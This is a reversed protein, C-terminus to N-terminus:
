KAEPKRTPAFEDFDNEVLGLDVYLTLLKGGREIVLAKPKGDRAVGVYITDLDRTTIIPKGAFSVFVDGVQLGAKELLSGPEVSRARVRLTIQRGSVDFHRQEILRNGDYRATWRASGQKCAIPRGDPGFYAEEVIQNGAGYGRELRAYGQGSTVLSGAADFTLAETQRGRDDYRYETRAVGDNQALLQGDIGLYRMQTQQGRANYSYVIAAKGEALVPKGAVGFYATEVLRNSGDFRNVLKSYGGSGLCPKGDIGFCAEELIQNQKGRKWTQRACGPKALTPKGDVGFYNIAILQGASDYEWTKRASGDSQLCLEGQTDFTALETVRRNRDFSNKWRARGAILVPEGNLDFYATETRNGAEDYSMTARAFGDRFRVPRRDVGLYWEEIVNGRPDRTQRLIAYGRGTLVPRDNADLYEEATKYGNPDYSCKWGCYGEHFAPKGNPAFFHIETINGDSNIIRRMSANGHPPIAVPKDNEDFYSYVAENPRLGTASASDHYQGRFIAFSRHCRAPALQAGLVTLYTPRGREDFTARYGAYGLSPVVVPKGAADHYSLQIMKGTADFQRRLVAVGERNAKMKGAPDTLTTEVERGSGDWRVIVNASGIGPPSFPVGGKTYEGVDTRTRTLTWLEQGDGDYATESAVSGFSNYTFTFYREPHISAFFSASHLHEEPQYVSRYRLRSDLYEVKTVQGNRRTLRVSFGNQRAQKEDIANFGKPAGFERVCQHYYEVGNPSVTPMTAVPAMRAMRANRVGRMFGSIVGLGIVAVVLVISVIAAIPFGSRAPQRRPLRRRPSWDDDDDLRPRPPLVPLVTLPEATIAPSNLNESRVPEGCRPCFRGGEDPSAQWRHGCSCSMLQMSM